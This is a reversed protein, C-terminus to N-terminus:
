AALYGTMFGEEATSIEDDESFNEIFSETYIDTDDEDEKEIIIKMEPKKKKSEELKILKTQEQITNIM